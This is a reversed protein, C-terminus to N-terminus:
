YPAFQKWGSKLLTVFDSARLTVLWEGSKGRSCRRTFAVPTEHARAVGIAEGLKKEPKPLKALQVQVCFGPTNKLDRGRQEQSEEGSARRAAQPWLAKVIAVVEREGAAGKARSKKGM